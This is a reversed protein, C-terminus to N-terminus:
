YETWAYNDTSFGTYSSVLPFHRDKPIEQFGSGQFLFRSRFRKEFNTAGDVGIKRNPCLRHVTPTFRRRQGRWIM